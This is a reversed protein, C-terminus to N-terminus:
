LQKLVSVTFFVLMPLVVLLFDVVLSVMYDSWSKSDNVADDNKKRKVDLTVPDSFVSVIQIM